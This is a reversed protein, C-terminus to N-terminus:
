PDKKAGAEHKKPLWEQISRVQSSSKSRALVLPVLEAGQPAHAEVRQVPGVSSRHALSLFFFPILEAGRQAHAEVRQIYGNGIKSRSVQTQTYGWTPIFPGMILPTRLYVKEKLVASYGRDLYCAYGKNPTPLYVKRLCCGAWEYRGPSIVAGQQRTYGVAIVRRGGTTGGPLPQRRRSCVACQEAKPRLLIPHKGVGLPSLFKNRIDCPTTGQSWQALRTRMHLPSLTGTHLTARTSTIGSCATACPTRRCSRASCPPPRSTPPPLTLRRSGGRAERPRRTEDAPFL